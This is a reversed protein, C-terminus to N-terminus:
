IKSVLAKDSIDNTFIKKWETPQRKTKSMTEKVMCFSKIRIYDQSNIEPKIESAQSSMDLIINSCNTDSVNNGTSEELIKITEPIM